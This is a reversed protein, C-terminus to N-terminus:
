QNKDIIPSSPLFRIGDAAGGPGSRMTLEGYLTQSEATSRLLSVEGVELPLAAYKLWPIPAIFYTLPEIRM